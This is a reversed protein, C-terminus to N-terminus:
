LSNSKNPKTLFKFIKKRKRYIYEHVGSITIFLFFLAILPIFLIGYKGTIFTFLRGNHLEFMYNWLPFEYNEKLAKPMPYYADEPANFMSMLGHQFTSIFHVGEPSQFYGMIMYDAPREMGEYKPVSQNYVVDYSYPNGEKYDFLGYFSGILFHGDGKYDFVTAGMVFINVDWNQLSFVADTKLDGKYIGEKTDLILEETDTNITANRISHYWQNETLANPVYKLPVHGDVLAVLAPPRMFFGTGGIILLFLCVYLGINTHNKIMWGMTKNVKKKKAKDTPKKKKRFTIYLATVCLFILIVSVLDYVIRGPMGWLWGSHLAFTYSILNYTSMQEKSINLNSFHDLTSRNGKYVHNETVVILNDKHPLVKVVKERYTSPLPILKVKQTPVDVQYLGGYAGVLLSNSTSDLFLDNVKSYYSSSDIPLKDFSKGKDSSLWIGANGGMIVTDVGIFEADRIMGRNWHEPLYDNPLFTNSVNFPACLDIHNLLIGSISMWILILSISIGVYKHWKKSFNYLKKSIM